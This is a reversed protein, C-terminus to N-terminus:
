DTQSLMQTFIEFWVKGAESIASELSRDRILFYFLSPVSFATSVCFAIVTKFLLHFLLETWEM